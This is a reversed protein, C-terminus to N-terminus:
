EERQKEPDDPSPPAKPDDGEGDGGAGPLVGSELEAWAQDREVGSIQEEMRSSIVRIDPKGDHTFLKGLVKKGGAKAESVMGLLIGKLRSGRDEKKPAPVGVPRGQNPTRRGTKDEQPGKYNKDQRAKREKGEPSDALFGDVLGLSIATEDTIRAGEAGVLFRAALGEACARGNADRYTRQKLIVTM